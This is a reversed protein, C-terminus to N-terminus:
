NPKSRFRKIPVMLPNQLLDEPPLFSFNLSLINATLHNKQEFLSVQLKNVKDHSVIVDRDDSESSFLSYRLHFSISQITTATKPTHRNEISTSFKQKSRKCIQIIPSVVPQNKKKM